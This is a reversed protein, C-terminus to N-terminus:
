PGPPKELLFVTSSKRGLMSEVRLLAPYDRPSIIAPSVVFDDTLVIKGASETSVIRASGGGDPEALNESRPAIVVQRFGAPLQIETRVSNEGRSSIYVPLARRDAGAPILSPTFPLDFYLYRGDAVSYNDIDVTFQELGPYTDFRTVLDGVPQAGQAMASVTEQYYRRREEPPLESFYRNQAGYGGGYYHRTVGIRTKGSDSITLTYATDTKDGCNRAAKILESSQTSLVLGLRGDYSTSGLRAYQDTDNLYYTEGDLKVRVLPAAYSDPMPFSLAVKAIGAIPPYASAEVFEPQFGAAALMAHLLIARDAAHGYGEALTTDADSLETLPLDTFSPGALRISKAVFDRIAQVAELRTKSQGTLYRGVEGAKTRKQSHDLMADNLDKLYSHLDGVYYLVCPSYIWPPPLMPEAPLAKANEAQWQWRFLENTWPLRELRSDLEHILGPEGSVRKQITVGPPATLVFAKAALDDPLQFSELGSLFPKGKTTIEYEVEITSGIDVGPLNAVLIKGGTYRKASANWGADMVNIENAAIEQRAGTKSTVVGRLFRAEQCSPNYDIKVEAERIKGAYTLILKSYQVNLVASHADKVDLQKRVDLIKANSEVPSDMAADVTEGANATATASAALVPVKREDYQMAKLTQKLTLYQAPSFEVVKLMMDRSCHLAGKAFACSERYSVCPDDVPPCSPMSLASAYDAAM